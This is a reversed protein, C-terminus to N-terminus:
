ARVCLGNSGFKLEFDLLYLNIAVEDDFLGSRLIQYYSYYVSFHFYLSLTRRHDLHQTLGPEMQGCHQQKQLTALLM